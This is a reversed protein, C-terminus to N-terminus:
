ATRKLVTTLGAISQVLFSAIFNGASDGLAIPLGVMMWTVQDWTVSVTSNIPPLTVTATSYSIVPIGQQGQAGSPGTAGTAGAPGTAGTAGQPGQPGPVTSDAGAPGTPGTAGTPGQIGQIGQPGQAGTDGKPGQAGTAGTAGPNGPPGQPGTAGAAGTAGTAGQAAMLNWHAVDTAPDFGTNAVTCIYSQNTRQVCDNVAYSSSGSWTGRWVISTGAPGTNGIPGQSGTNGIPGQPGQPGTAGTPGQPGIAGQSAMMSWPAGLVPDQGTSSVTCVYSSGNQEVCDYPAYGTTASWPGRWTYIPGGSTAPVPAWTMDGRCFLSIDMPPPPLIPYAM